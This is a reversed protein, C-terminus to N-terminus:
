RKNSGIRRERTLSHLTWGSGGLGSGELRIRYHDCRRLPIVIEEQGKIMEGTLHRLLEWEGRSDYRIKIDLTTDEDMELRLVLRSVGKKRTTGETFDAFEVVTAVGEEGPSEVRREGLILVTGAHAETGRGREELAYLEGNWGLGLFAMGDEKHWVRHRTDFCFVDYVGRENEMSIYYRVGDSGAVANRYHDEGFNEGVPYPYGGGYAMVGQPSLYYLTDGAIALSGGSGAEVGLSETESTSFQGPYDGYLRIIRHEKFFVPRGGYSIGGTIDGPTGTELKWSDTSDGNFSEWNTPDGLKCCWIDGGNWGWLRNHHEFVGELEPVRRAIIINHRKGLSPLSSEGGEVDGPNQAEKVFQRWTEDLFRLETRDAAGNYEIEQIVYAGMAEGYLVGERLTVAVGDGARFLGTLDGAAKITNALAPEGAYTGDQFTAEGEWSAGMQRLEGTERDYLVKDPWICIKKQIGAMIKRSDAVAAVEAGDVILRDGDVWAVCDRCFLGNPKAVAAHVGRRPRVTLAPYRAASMNVSVALAGDGAAARRDFGGFESQTKENYNGSYIIPTMGYM